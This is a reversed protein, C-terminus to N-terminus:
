LQKVLLHMSTYVLCDFLDEIQIYVVKPQPNSTKVLHSHRYSNLYPAPHFYPGPHLYQAPHLSPLCLKQGYYGYGSKNKKLQKGLLYISTYVILAPM